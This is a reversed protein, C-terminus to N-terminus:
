QYFLSGVLTGISLQNVQVNLYTAEPVGPLPLTLPANVTCIGTYFEPGNGQVQVAAAGVTVSVVVRLPRSSRPLAVDIATFTGAADAATVTRSFPVSRSGGQIGNGGVGSAGFM